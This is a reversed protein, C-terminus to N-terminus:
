PSAPVRMTRTGGSGLPVDVRDAKGAGDNAVVTSVSYLNPAEPSWLSPRAIAPLEQQLERTEGAALKVRLRTSSM